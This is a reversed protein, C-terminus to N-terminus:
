ARLIGAVPEPSDEILSAPDVDFWSALTAYYRSFPVPARLNGDPDLDRLDAPEGHLGAVVPGLLLSCSATGHDLGGSNEQPRRGFESTTAVLVDDALGGAELDRLFAEIGPAVIALSRAHGELHHEHTDFMTETASVHVVRIGPDHRLLQSTFALQRGFREIQPDDTPYGPDPPPVTALRGDVDLMRGLGARRPDAAEGGAIEALTDRFIEAAAPGAGRLPQLSGADRRGITSGLRSQMAPSSTIGVSVGTLSGPGGVADCLRGFFGSDFTAASEPTGAWWRALMDFHSLSPSRAGLGDLIALGHPHLGALAANLFFGDGLDIMDPNAIATTPRLDHYRGLEAPVATSLGDNGGPLEIVVLRRRDVPVAARDTGADVRTAPPSTTATAARPDSGSCASGFATAAGAGAMWGLVQRRTPGTGGQDILGM